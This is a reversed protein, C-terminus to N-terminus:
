VLKSLCYVEKSCKQNVDVHKEIEITAKYMRPIEFSGSKLFDDTVIGSKISGDELRLKFRKNKIDLAILTGKIEIVEKEIRYVDKMENYRTAVVDKTLSIKRSKTSNPSATIFQVHSGTKRIADMLKTYAKIFASQDKVKDLAYLIRESELVDNVIAMENIADSENFLNIADPFVYDVICSGARLNIQLPERRKKGFVSNTLSNLASNTDNIFSGTVFHRDTGEYLHISFTTANNERAFQLTNEEIDDSIEKESFVPNEPLKKMWEKSELSLEILDEEEKYIKTISFLNFGSKGNYADQISKNRDILDYYERNSIKTVLWVDRDQDSSMEYFLYKSNFLDECVFVHPYIFELLVDYLYLDGLEDVHM